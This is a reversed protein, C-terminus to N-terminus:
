ATELYICCAPCEDAAEVVAAEHESPVEVVAGDDTIMCSKAPGYYCYVLGKNFLQAYVTKGSRDHFAAGVPHMEYMTKLVEAQRPTIKTM